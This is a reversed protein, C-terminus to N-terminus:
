GSIASKPRTFYAMGWIVPIVAAQLLSERVFLAYDFPLNEVACMLWTLFLRYAGLSASLMFVFVINEAVFFRQSLHFLYIQGGYWLVASGFTLSGSGEQILVFICFLWFTQKTKREQLSLLFGPVLADVGPINQQVILAGAIYTAWWLLLLATKM